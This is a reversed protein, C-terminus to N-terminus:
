AGCTGSGLPCEEAQPAPPPVPNTWPQCGLALFYTNQDYQLVASTANSWCVAAAVDAAATGAPVTLFSGVEQGEIPCECGYEMLVATCSFVLDGSVIIGQGVFTGDPLCKVAPIEPPVNPDQTAESGPGPAVCGQNAAGTLLPAALLLAVIPLLARKKKM